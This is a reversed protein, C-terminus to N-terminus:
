NNPLLVTPSLSGYRVLPSLYGAPTRLSFHLCMQESCHQRYNVDPQCVIAIPQGVSVEASAALDSCAPEFELLDGARTRISVVQRDVVKGNFWITADTPAFVRDGLRVRYDVGRHGASYDSNPQFYPNVLQLPAALPAQWAETAPLEDAGAKGNQQQWLAVSILLLAMVRTLVIKRLPHM